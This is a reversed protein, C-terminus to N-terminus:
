RSFSLLNLLLAPAELSSTSLMSFSFTSSFSFSSFAELSIICSFSCIEPRESLKFFVFTSHSSFSLLTSVASAWTVERWFCAASRSSSYSLSKSSFWFRWAWASLCLLFQYSEISKVGLKPSSNYGMWVMLKTALNDNDNFFPFFFFFIPGQHFILCENVNILISHFWKFGELIRRILFFLIILKQMRTFNWIYQIHKRNKKKLVRFKSYM